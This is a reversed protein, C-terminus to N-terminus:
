KFRRFCNFCVYAVYPLPLGHGTSKLRRPRLRCPAARARAGGGGGAAPKARGPPRVLVLPAHASAGGADTKARGPLRRARRAPRAGSATTARRAPTSFRGLRPHALPAPHTARCCRPLNVDINPVPRISHSGGFTTAHLPPPSLSHILARQAADRGVMPM